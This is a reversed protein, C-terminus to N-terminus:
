RGVTHHQPTPLGKKQGLTLSKSGSKANAGLDLFREVLSDRRRGHPLRGIGNLIEWVTISALGLGEGAISDLYAAVSPEPERRMMESVVNTDILWAIPSTM